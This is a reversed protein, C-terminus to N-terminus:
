QGPPPTWGRSTLAEGVQRLDFLDLSLWGDTAPQHVGWVFTRGVRRRGLAVPGGARDLPAHVQRGNVPVLVLRDDWVQLELPNRRMAVWTVLTGVLLGGFLVAVAIRGGTTTAGLVGRVLAAASVRVRVRGGPQAGDAAARDAAPDAGARVAV